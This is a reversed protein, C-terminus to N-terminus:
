IKVYGEIEEVSRKIMDLTIERQEMTFGLLLARDCVLNILRPVGGSYEYIESIADPGFKVSDGSGAVRLRHMIYDSIEAKDLPLIHYRVSIRQRLQELEPSNLKERLEPQGVLVIQILKDKDTELNSLMRIQELQASKLNQAEDIILVVNSGAKLQEILFKNLETLLSIKTRPKVTLGFDTVIAFLLQTEPLNSNLIFATKTKQDLQGILARCLTTKGTGIEGTIELFGRREKIGYILHDFAERHKKSFFLFNPDATVNFPREKLGYFIEYM